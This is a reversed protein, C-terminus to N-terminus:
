HVLQLLMKGSDHLASLLKLTIRCHNLSLCLCFFRQDKVISQHKLHLDRKIPEEFWKEVLLLQICSSGDFLHMDLCYCLVSSLKGGQTPAALCLMFFSLSSQHHVLHIRRQTCHLSACDLTQICSRQMERMRMESCWLTYWQIVTCRMADCHM